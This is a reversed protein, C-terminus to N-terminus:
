PPVPKPSSRTRSPLTEPCVVGDQAYRDFLGILERFLARSLAKTLIDAIMVRGAIHRLTVVDRAVLDRLFHAARLIHKTQKFAVPDFAM